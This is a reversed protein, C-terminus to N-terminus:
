CLKWVSPRPQRTHTDPRIIGTPEESARPKYCVDWCGGDRDGMKGGGEWDEM